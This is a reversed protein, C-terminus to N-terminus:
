AKLERIKNITEMSPKIFLKDIVRNLIISGSRTRILKVINLHAKYLTEKEEKSENFYIEIFWRNLPQEKLFDFTEQHCIELLEHFNKSLPLEKFTERLVNNLKTKFTSDDTVEIKFELTFSELKHTQGQKM